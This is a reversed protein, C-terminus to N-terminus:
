AVYLGIAVLVVWLAALVQLPRDALVVDEPAGGEGREILLAYRLFALVFPVISVEFWVIGTRHIQADFAWLCYAVMAVGSAVSRVYGLYEVSYEELTARHGAREVGLELHEAHRKGAVMFLSGFSGVVIFWVSIRVDVAVAGAILRLVFGAAVMGLDIVAVHKLWLSYTTTFTVYLGIVLALHWNALFSVAVGSLLLVLGVIKATTVPVAGAAIPRFRKKAHRRDAEVDMADNLFYTGSAALSFAVFAIITDVIVDRHGLVGAAGPAAAVLVNKMWQKPRATRILGVALSPPPPNGASSSGAGTAPTSADAGSPKPAPDAM